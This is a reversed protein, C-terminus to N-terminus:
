RIQIRTERAALSESGDAGSRADDLGGNWGQCPRPRRAFRLSPFTKARNLRQSATRTDFLWTCTESRCCYSRTPSSDSVDYQQPHPRVLSLSPPPPPPGPPRPRAGSAATAYWQHSQQTLYPSPAHNAAVGVDSPKLGQGYGYLPETVTPRESGPGPTAEPARAHSLDSVRPWADTPRVCQSSPDLLLRQNPYASIHSGYSAFSPPPQSPATTQVSCYDSPAPRGYGPEHQPPRAPIPAQWPNATPQHSM